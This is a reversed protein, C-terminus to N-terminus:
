MIKVAELHGGETALHLPTNENFRNKAQTVLAADIDFMAQLVDVSGKKAALHALTNGDKTTSSVLSPRIELFKKVVNTHDHQAALHIPKQDFDDNSDVMAELDILKEITDLNGSAAAMHMPTQKKITLSEITAGHKTVLYDVLNSYGKNAVFHLSTMGKKTKSNVFANRELLSQCVDMSGCDAALHLASRGENDFVDVRANCKLLLEVVDKHGKSSAALLPAWGLSNQKNVALQVIGQNSHSIMEQLLECNGSFAVYHFASENNNETQITVDAGSEMLLTVIMKDEDPYHLNGKSIMSAYHLATEGKKNKKNVYGRTNGIFGRIFQLLERVIHFFCEKCAKHLPTEGDKDLTEADGGNQLLARLVMLNGFSSAIHIATRGDGMSLNPDAGSQVLMKTCKEGKAEDIRAAIHLPTEGHQGGKLHVNAGQGLLAEVVAAKGHEVAIHLSSLGDGTPTDVHEGKKILTNIVNVHGEKAATHISRAGFRNPMLLPVGREFLIMATDPHGNIAAIHMLTSGDRTRDYISAKFKDALFEVIRSM